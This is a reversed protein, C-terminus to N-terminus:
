IIISFHFSILVEWEEEDEEGAEWFEIEADYQGDWYAEDRLNDLFSFLEQDNMARIEDFTYKKDKLTIYPELMFNKRRWYAAISCENYGKRYGKKYGRKYGKKFREIRLTELFDKLENDNMGRIASLNYEKEAVGIVYEKKM